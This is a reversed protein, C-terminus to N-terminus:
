LLKCRVTFQKSSKQASLLDLETNHSKPTVLVVQQVTILRCKAGRKCTSQWTDHLLIRLQHPADLHQVDMAVDIEFKLLQPSVAFHESCVVLVHLIGPRADRLALGGTVFAVHDDVAEVLM